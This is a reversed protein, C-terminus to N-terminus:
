GGNMEDFAEGYLHMWFILTDVAFTLNKIQVETEANVPSIEYLAVVDELSQRLRKFTDYALDHAELRGEKREDM